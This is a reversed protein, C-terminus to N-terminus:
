AALHWGTPAKWQQWCSHMFETLLDLTQPDEALPGSAKGSCLEVIVRNIEINWFDGLWIPLEPGLASGDLLTM